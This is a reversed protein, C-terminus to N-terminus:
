NNNKVYWRHSNCKIGCPHINWTYEYTLPFNANSTKREFCCSTCQNSLRDWRKKKEKEEEGDGRIDVPSTNPAVVRDFIRRLWRRNAKRRKKKKKKERSDIRSILVIILFITEDTSFSLPSRLNLQILLRSFEKSCILIKKKKSTFDM